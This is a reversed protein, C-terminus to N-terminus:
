STWLISFPTAILNWSIPRLTTADGVVCLLVLAPPLLAPLTPVIILQVNVLRLVLPLSRVNFM